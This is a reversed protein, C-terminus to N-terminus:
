LVCACVRVCLALALSLTCARVTSLLKRKDDVRRRLMMIRTVSNALTLAKKKATGIEEASQLTAGLTLKGESIFKEVEEKEEEAKRKLSAVLVQQIPCNWTQPDSDSRVNFPSGSARSCAESGSLRWNGRGMPKLFLLRGAKPSVERLKKLHEEVEKKVPVLNVLYCDHKAEGPLKEVDKSAQKIMDFNVRWDEVEDMNSDCFEDLDVTGLAVWDTWKKQEQELKALLVEAQEYVKAVAAGQQDAMPRFFGPKGTSLESFGKAVNPLKIFDKVIKYHQTRIDELAPEFALRKHKFTLKVEMQPLTENLCELGRAYQCELVKYLQYDWHKRWTATHQETFGQSL